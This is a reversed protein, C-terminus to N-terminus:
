LPRALHALTIGKNPAHLLLDKTRPFKGSSERNQSTLFDPPPMIAKIERL